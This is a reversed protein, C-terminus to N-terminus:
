LPNENELLTRVRALEEDWPRIPWWWEGGHWWHLAKHHDIHAVRTHRTWYYRPGCYMPWWWANHWTIWHNRLRHWMGYPMM